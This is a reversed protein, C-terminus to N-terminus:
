SRELAQEDYHGAVRRCGRPRPAHATRPDALDDLSVVNIGLAAAGPEIDRREGADVVRVVDYDMSRALRALADAVPTAGVVILSRAQIFPEVYVDVAGESVCTMPVVVHEDTAAVPESADPRISVLCGHRAAISELAQQRIIERACAGGVFGEMRGDAFVIARDGPHASVPARRAM